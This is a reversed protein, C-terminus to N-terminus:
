MDESVFWKRIFGGTKSGHCAGNTNSLYMSDRFSLFMKWDCSSSPIIVSVHCNERRESYLHGRILQGCRDMCYLPSRPNKPPVFGPNMMCKSGLLFWWNMENGGFCFVCATYLQTELGKKGNVKKKLSISLGKPPNQQPHKKEPINSCPKLSLVPLTTFKGLSTSM